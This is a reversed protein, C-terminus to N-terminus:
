YDVRRLSARGDTEASSDQPVLGVRYGSLMQCPCGWVELGGESYEMIVSRRSHVAIFRDGGGGEGTFVPLPSLSRVRASTQAM